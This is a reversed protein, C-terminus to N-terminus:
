AMFLTAEVKFRHALKKVQSKSLDRTGKLFMSVASESGIIRGIDAQSLKNAEMLARLAERPTMEETAAHHEDEYKNVLVILTDLYDGSGSDLERGILGAIMAAAQEHEDGNKITKLPFRRVLEMYTDRAPQKSKTKTRPM